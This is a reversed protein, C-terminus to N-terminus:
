ATCYINSLCKGSEHGQLTPRVDRAFGGLNPHGQGKKHRYTFSITWLVVTKSESLQLLSDSRSNSTYSASSYFYPIDSMFRRQVSLHRLLPWKLSKYYITYVQNWRQLIDVVVCFDTLLIQKNMKRIANWITLTKKQCRTPCHVRDIKTPSRPRGTGRITSWVRFLQLTSRQTWSEVVMRLAVLNIKELLGPFTENYLCWATGCNWLGLQSGTMTLDQKRPDVVGRIFFPKIIM